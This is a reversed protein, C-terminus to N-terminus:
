STFDSDLLLFFTHLQIIIPTLPQAVGRLHLATKLPLYLTTLSHRNSVLPSIHCSHLVIVCKHTLARAGPHNTSAM